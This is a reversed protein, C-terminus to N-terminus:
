SWAMKEMMEELAAEVRADEEARLSLYLSFCDVQGDRAFLEPPYCWLQVRCTGTDEVPIQEVRSAIKKWAQAGLAYVPEKPPVLMSLGGLATEGAQIRLKLLLQSERIRVTERVPNRLYPLAAPWLARRGAPFNLLRERGNREVQGLANAEIEDLARTMTMTTYGLKEALSKPTIPAPIGGTLACILVAQTAPSVIAVAVPTQKKKRAQVALGLEPWYLQQGPVVFPIKREVLRQRLYAPLAEAVLCYGEVDTAGVMIQRLHKEFTAPRFSASDALLIGLFSRRGITIECQTYQQTLYLPLHESARPRWTAPQGAVESVYKVFQNALKEM